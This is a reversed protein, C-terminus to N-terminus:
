AVMMVYRAQMGAIRMLEYYGRTTRSAGTIMGGGFMPDGFDRMVFPAQEVRVRSWDLDMEEAILLPMATMVGQGMEAAPSYVTVTGNAAVVVWANPSFSAAQAHAKKATLVSGFAVGIATAGGTVLFARRSVPRYAISDFVQDKAMATERLRDERSKRDGRHDPQLHRLPVPQGAHALRDARADAEQEQGAACGRGHDAGVPLLRVADGAGRGLSEAAPPQRQALARRDDDSEQREGGVGAHRLRADPQRGRARHVRRVAGHRLRVQHRHPRAHRAAGVAAPHRARGRCQGAPWQRHFYGHFEGRPHLTCRLKRRHRFAMNCHRM